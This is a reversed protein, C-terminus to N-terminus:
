VLGQLIALIGSPAQKSFSQVLMKFPPKTKLVDRVSQVRFFIVGFSWM